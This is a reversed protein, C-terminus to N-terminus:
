LEIQAFNLRTRKELTKTFQYSIEFDVMGHILTGLGVLIILTFIFNDSTASVGAATLLYVVIVEAIAHILNVFFSFLTRSKVNVLTNSLKKLYLAGVTAFVIHSLARLVITIPFGAAVFGLTTGVAVIAAIKPSRFMAMVIPIHSGLTYSAPGLIIKIPMIMPILIGLATLLSAIVLDRTNQRQQTM